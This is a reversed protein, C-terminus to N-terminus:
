DLVLQVTDVCSALRAHAPIGKIGVLVKYKFPGASARSTRRWRHWVVSFPADVPPLTSLVMELDERGSFRVMFDELAHWRILGVDDSVGFVKHLHQKVGFVM